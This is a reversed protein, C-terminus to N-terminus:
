RISFRSDSSLNSSRPGRFPLWLLLFFLVALAEGALVYVPWPGLYDLLSPRSPKRCLYFYNAGTLADFVGVALAYLNLAALARWMSAPRPRAQGTWVLYLILAITGGHSLFFYITPYSAPPTWLEPTLVAMAAGALGAYYAVDFIARGLAFAAAVTLWVSLDCLHLPLGEPFRWGEHLLRYVYWALENATLLAALALGLGRAPGRRGIWTLAAAASPIAALMMLHAPGLLPFGTPM